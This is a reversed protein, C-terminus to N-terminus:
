RPERRGHLPVGRVKLVLAHAYILALVRVTAFPYRRTVGRVNATTLPIRRLSLTADFVRRDCERNEIHVSLTQGPAAARWVYSQEMALFPSVRLRKAFRGGLVRGELEDVLLYAHRERWPTNTVEAVLAGLKGDAGFCFYFAVPNFCHGFTRLHALLEIRGDPRWGTRDQVMRRVAEGLPLRPDGLYDERRFRVLGPRRRVLRGELAEGVADVDLYFLALRHRFSRPRVAFRRHRVSGEYICPGAGPASLDSM